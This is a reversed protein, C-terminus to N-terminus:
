KTHNFPPCEDFNLFCGFDNSLGNRHTPEFEVLVLKLLRNIFDKMVLGTCAIIKVNPKGLKRISLAFKTWCEESLFPPDVIIVDVNGILDTPLSLPSKYDYRNYAPSTSFRDDFELLRVKDEKWDQALHFFLTPCSLCVVLGSDPTIKKVLNGLTDTTAHSYWFQSLEWDEKFESITPVFGKEAEKAMEQFRTAETEQQQLFSQLAAFAHSSLKLDDDSGDSDPM